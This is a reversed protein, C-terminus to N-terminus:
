WGTDQMCSGNRIKQLLFLVFLPLVEHEKEQPLSCHRRTGSRPGPRSGWYIYNETWTEHRQRVHVELIKVEKIVKKGECKVATRKM